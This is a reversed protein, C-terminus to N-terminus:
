FSFFLKSLRLLRWDCIEICFLSKMKLHTLFKLGALFHCIINNGHEYPIYDSNDFCKVVDLPRKISEHCM